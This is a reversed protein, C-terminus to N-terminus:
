ILVGSSAVASTRDERDLRALGHQRSRRPELRLAQDTVGAQEAPVHGLVADVLPQGRSVEIEALM